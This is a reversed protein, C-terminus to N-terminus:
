LGLAVDEARVGVGFDDDMEVLLVAFADELLQASLEGHREDVEVLAGDEEGAVADADARQM